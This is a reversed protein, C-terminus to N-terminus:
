LILLYNDMNFKLVSFGLFYAFFSMNQKNEQTYPM